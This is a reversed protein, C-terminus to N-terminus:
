VPPLRDGIEKVRVGDLPLHAVAGAVELQDLRHEGVHLGTDDGAQAVQEPSLV